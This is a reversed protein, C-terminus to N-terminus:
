SLIFLLRVHSPPKRRETKWYNDNEIFIHFDLSVVTHHVHRDVVQMVKVRYLAARVVYKGTFYCIM